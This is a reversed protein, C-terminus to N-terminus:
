CVDRKYPRPPKPPQGYAIKYAENTSGYNEWSLVSRGFLLKLFYKSYAINDPHFIVVLHVFVVVPLDALFQVQKSEGFQYPRSQRKPSWASTYNVSFEVIKDPFHSALCAVLSNGDGVDSFTVQIFCRAM